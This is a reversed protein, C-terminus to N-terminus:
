KCVQKGTSDLRPVLAGNPSVLYQCGTLSDKRIESAKLLNSPEHPKAPQVVEIKNRTLIDNTIMNAWDKLFFALCILSGCFLLVTLLLLPVRTYRPYADLGLTKGLFIALAMLMAALFLIDINV